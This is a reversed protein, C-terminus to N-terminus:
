QTEPHAIARAVVRWHERREVTPANAWLAEVLPAVAAVWASTADVRQLSRELELAPKPDAVLREAEAELARLIESRLGEHAAALDVLSRVAGYRVWEHPDRTADLLRDVSEQDPQHGLAHAARWRVVARTDEALTLWVLDLQSQAMETRRLVNAATWGLLPDDGCLESVAAKPAQSGLPAVFLERWARIHPDEVEIARVMELLAEPDEASRLEATVQDDFLRLADDVQDVTPRMKDFRREALMAVIALHTDRGVAIEGLRCGEALAYATGYYNYDYVSLVFRNAREPEAIRVLALALVDFSNAGFTLPGFNEAVWRDRDGAALWRAALDDHFLHHRFIARNGDVRLVGAGTLKEVAADGAREAFEDFAFVRSPSTLYAAAAAESAADLESRDLAVHEALYEDLAETGPSAAIGPRMALSLFFANGRALHSTAPPAGEPPEVEAIGALQWHRSPLTRRLLRDTVLVGTQPNRMAIGDAVELISDATPGPTENLGDLVLLVPSDPGLAGLEEEGFAPQGLRELLLEARAASDGRLENWEELTSPMWRRLDVVAVFAGERSAAVMLGRAVTTKGAGGEGHLLVRGRARAAELLIEPAGREVFQRDLLDLHNEALGITFRYEPTPLEIEAIAAASRRVLQEAVGLEAEATRSDFQM